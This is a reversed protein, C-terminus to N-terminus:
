LKQEWHKIRSRSSQGSVLVERIADAGFHEILAGWEDANLTVANLVHKEWAAVVLPVVPTIFALIEEAYVRIERQAHPSLRLELFHLLNRLDTKYRFETMTGLPLVARARERPVGQELLEHYADFAQQQIPGIAVPWLESGPEAVEEVPAIAPSFYDGEGFTSYRGSKEAYSGTRHRFWQRAVFIPARVFFHFEVFELPSMHGNQVLYNILAEDSRYHKSGAGYSVRAAEVVTRDDGMHDVLALRGGGNLRYEKNVVWSKDNNM